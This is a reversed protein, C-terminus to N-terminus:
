LEKAITAQPSTTVVVAAGSEHLSDPLKSSKMMAKAWGEFGARDLALFMIHGETIAWQKVSNKDYQLGKTIRIGVGQTPKKCGTQHYADLTLKRLKEEEQACDNRAKCLSEILDKHQQNFAVQLEHHEQTRSELTARIERVKAVQADLVTVLKDLHDSLSPGPQEKGDLLTADM